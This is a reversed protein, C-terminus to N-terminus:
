ATQGAYLPPPTQPTSVRRDKAALEDGVKIYYATNDVTTRAGILDQEVEVALRAQEAPENGYTARTYLQQDEVLDAMLSSIIELKAAPDNISQWLRTIADGPPQPAPLTPRPGYYQEILRRLDALSNFEDFLALARGSDLGLLTMAVSAVEDTDLSLAEPAYPQLQRDPIDIAVRGSPLLTGGALVATWGAFCAM